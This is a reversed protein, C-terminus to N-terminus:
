QLYHQLSHPPALTKINNIECIYESTSDSTQMVTRNKIKQLVKINNEM